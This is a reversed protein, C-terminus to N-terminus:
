ATFEMDQWRAHYRRSRIWFPILDPVRFGTRSAHMIAIGQQWNNPAVKNIPAYKPRRKMLHGAETWCYVGRHVTRYVQGMRHTHGSVGSCWWEEAMEAIASSGSHKHVRVGHTAVFTRGALFVAAPNEHWNIGFESLKLIHPLSVAEDGDFEPHSWAFGRVIRWDHNGPFADLLADPAASRYGRAIGYWDNKERKVIGTISRKDIPYSSAWSSDLLDGLFILRDPKAAEVIKYSLEIARPDHEGAHIDPILAIRQLEPM